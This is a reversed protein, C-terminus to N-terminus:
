PFDDPASNFPPTDPEDYDDYNDSDDSEEMPVPNIDNNFNSRVMTQGALFLGNELPMNFTFPSTYENNELTEILYQMTDLHGDRPTTLPRSMIEQRNNRRARSTRNNNPVRSNRLLVPNSLHYEGVPRMINYLSNQYPRNTSIDAATIDIEYYNFKVSTEFSVQSLQGFLFLGNNSPDISPYDFSINKRGFLPNQKRFIKLKKIVEQKNRIRKQPNISYKSHYYTILYPKFTNMVVSKPFDRHIKWNQIISGFFQTDTLMSMIKFYLQRTSFSDIHLNISIDKSLCESEDCFKQFNFEYNFYLQFLIPLSFSSYKLAFYINYLNAKSFPINNYPNRIQIPEPFMETTVRSLAKHIMSSLDALKFVYLANNDNLTIKLHNKISDMDTLFLDTNNMHKMKRLHYKHILKNIKKYLNQANSFITFVDEKLNDPMFINNIILSHLTKIRSNDKGLFYFLSGYINNKGYKYALNKMMTYFIDKKTFTEFLM